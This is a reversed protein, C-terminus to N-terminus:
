MKINLSIDLAKASHTLEGVSIIDVGTKAVERITGLNIGGSAEVLALDGIKSVAQKMMEPNMNDLMIIDVGAKLAEEVEQLNKTEVEIKTTIPIHERVRFVAETISGCGEIHNDKIMVANDLSLRHNRAGGKRVAYKELFRLGPITKRTDVIKAKYDKIEEVYESTLSAIGSLRQLFNLVVREGTLISRLNGQVIAIEQGKLVKDGENVYTEFELDPNITKWIQAVLPLGAIVGDEKAIFIGKGEEETFISNTTLDGLGIDEKLSNKILDEIVLYDLM